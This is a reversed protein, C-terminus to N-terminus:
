NWTATVSVVAEGASSASFNWGIPVTGFVSYGKSTSGLPLMYANWDAGNQYNAHITVGIGLVNNNKLELNVAQGASFSLTVPGNGMLATSKRGGGVMEVCDVNDAYDCMQTYMNFFLGPACQGSIGYDEDYFKSCDYPDRVYFGMSLTVTTILGVFIAIKLIQKRM